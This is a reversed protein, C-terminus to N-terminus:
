FALLLRLVTNTMGAPLPHDPNHLGGMVSTPDCSTFEANPPVAGTPEPLSINTDKLMSKETAKKGFVNDMM